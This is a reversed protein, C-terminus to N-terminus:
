RPGTRRDPPPRESRQSASRRAPATAAEALEAGAKRSTELSAADCAESVVVGADNVAPPQAPQRRARPNPSPIPQAAAAQRDLFDLYSQIVVLRRKGVLVYDIEGADFLEYLKTKGIDSVACFNAVTMTIHQHTDV